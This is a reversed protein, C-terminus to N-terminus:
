SQLPHILEQKLMMQATRGYSGQLQWVLGSNLLEQFLEVEENPMLQGDEWSMMLDLVDQAKARKEAEYSTMTCALNVNM